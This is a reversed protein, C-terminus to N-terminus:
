SELIAYLTGDIGVSAESTLFQINRVQAANVDSLTGTMVDGSKSLKGSVDPNPPTAWTGDQRFFKTVTSENPLIPVFGAALKSVNGPKNKIYDSASSDNQDWDSQITQDRERINVDLINTDLAVGAYGNTPTSTLSGNNDYYYVTGPTLSLGANYVIGSLIVSNYSGVIGMAKKSDNTCDAVQWIKNSDLYVFKNVTAGIGFNAQASYIHHNANIPDNKLPVMTYSNENLLALVAGKYKTHNKILYINSTASAPSPLNAETAVELVGDKLNNIVDLAENIRRRQYDFTDSLQVKAINSM